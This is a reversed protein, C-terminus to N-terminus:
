ESELYEDDKEAQNIKSLRPEIKSKRNRPSKFTNKKM